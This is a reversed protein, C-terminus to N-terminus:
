RSTQSPLWIHSTRETGKLHATTKLWIMTRRWGFLCRTLLLMCAAHCAYELRDCSCHLLSRM